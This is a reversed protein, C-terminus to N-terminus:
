TKLYLAKQSFLGEPLVFLPDQRLAMPLSADPADSLLLSGLGEGKAM